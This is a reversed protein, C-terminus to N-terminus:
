GFICELHTYSPLCFSVMNSTWSFHASEKEGCDAERTELRSTITQIQGKEKEFRLEYNTAWESTTKSTILKFQSRSNPDPREKAKSWQHLPKSSVMKGLHFSRGILRSARRDWFRQARSSNCRSSSWKPRIIRCSFIPARHARNKARLVWREWIARVM